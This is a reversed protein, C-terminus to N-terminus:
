KDAGTATTGDGTTTLLGRYWHTLEPRGAPIENDLRYERASDFGEQMWLTLKDLPPFGYASAKTGASYKINALSCVAALRVSSRSPSARSLSGNTASSTELSSAPASMM